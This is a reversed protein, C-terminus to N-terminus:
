QSKLFIIRSRAAKTWNSSSFNDVLKNYAELADERNDLRESLRGVSFLAHPAAPSLEAYNEEVRRYLEVAGKYNQQKERSVAASMLSVPALYTDSFNDAVSLFQEEAKSFNEKEVALQGLVMHARAAAFLNSYSSIIENGKSRIEKELSSMKEEEEANKWEEFSSSLEEAAVSSSEIRNSMVATYIALSVLVVVIVIGGGILVNRYTSLFQIVRDKLTLEETKEEHHAM